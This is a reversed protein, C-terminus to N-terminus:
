KEETITVNPIESIYSKFDSVLSNLVFEPPSIASDTDFFGITFTGPDFNNQAIINVDERWMEVSFDTGNPSTPDIRIAFGQMDAFKRMESFLQERQTAEIKVIITRRPYKSYATNNKNEDRIVAITKASYGILAGLLLCIFMMVIARTASM